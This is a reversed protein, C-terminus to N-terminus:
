DILTWYCKVGGNEDDSNDHDRLTCCQAYQVHTQSKESTRPTTFEVKERSKWSWKTRTTQLATISHFDSKKGYTHQLRCKRSMQCKFCKISKQHRNNAQIRLGFNLLPRLFMIGASSYPRRPTLTTSYPSVGINPLFTEGGDAPDFALLLLCLV